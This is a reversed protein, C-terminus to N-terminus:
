VFNYSDCQVALLVINKPSPSPKKQEGSVKVVKEKKAPKATAPETVAKPSASQKTAPKKVAVDADKKERQSLLASESPILKTTAKSATQTQTTKVKVPKPSTKIAAKAAAGKKAPTEVGTESSSQTKKTTAM